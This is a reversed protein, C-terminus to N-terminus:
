LVNQTRLNYGLGKAVEVVSSVTCCLVNCSLISIDYIIAYHIRTLKYPHSHTHTQISTFTNTLKFPHSHTQSNTHATVHKLTQIPAFKHSDIHTHTYTLKYSHTYALTFLGSICRSSALSRMRTGHCLGPPSTPSSPATSPPASASRSAPAGPCGTCEM